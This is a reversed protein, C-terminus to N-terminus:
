PVADPLFRHRYGSSIKNTVDGSAGGYGSAKGGHGIQGEAFEDGSHAGAFGTARDNEAAVFIGVARRLFHDRGHLIGQLERITIRVRGDVRQAGSDRLRMRNLGFLEDEAAARAFDEANTGGRKERWAFFEDGGHWGELGYASACFSHSSLDGFDGEGLSKRMIEGGEERLCVGGGAKDVNAIGVIGRAAEGRALVQFGEDALKGSGCSNEDVLGVM